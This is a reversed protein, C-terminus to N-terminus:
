QVSGPRRASAFQVLTVFAPPGALVIAGALQTLDYGPQWWAEIWIFFAYSALGSISWAIARWAPWGWPLLAALGALWIVYWPRLNPTALLLIVFLVEFCAGPLREPRRSLAGLQYAWVILAIGAGLLLLWPRIATGPYSNDLLALAAAAPSAYVVSGQSAVSSWLAGLDYFPFLAVALALLSLLTSGALLRLREGWEGARGWLAVAALPILPLTVYKVLAAVVLLPIVLMSRGFVSSPPGIAPRGTNLKAAQDESRSEEDETRPGRDGTRTRKAWAWLALLVFLMLLADNHGNGVGEWLVLPNWMYMLAGVAADQPRGAAILARAIAWGGALLCAAMLMKFGLVALLMRDGALATVPAAVLNWLPGYPSAHAAWEPTMYRAWADAAYDSPLAASPNAGYSTLLRSRAAYLFVDIANVPYMWSMGVMMLGACGFIPVLARRADARRAARLALLYLGFTAAQGGVYGAFPWFRYKALQGIDVLGGSNAGLPYRLAFAFLPVLMALGCLWLRREAATAARWAVNTRTLAENSSM